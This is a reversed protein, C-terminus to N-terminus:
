EKVDEAKRDDIEKEELVGALYSLKCLTEVRGELRVIRRLLTNTISERFGCECAHAPRHKPGLTRISLKEGCKPCYCTM